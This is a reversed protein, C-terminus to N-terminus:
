EERLSELIDEETVYFGLKMSERITIFDKPINHMRLDPLRLQMETILADLTELNVRQTSGDDVTIGIERPIEKAIWKFDIEAVEAKTRDGDAYKKDFVVRKEKALEAKQEDSYLDPRWNTYELITKKRKLIAWNKNTSSLEKNNIKVM